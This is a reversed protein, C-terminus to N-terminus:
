RKEPPPPPFYARAPASPAVTAAPAASHEPAAQSRMLSSSSVPVQQGKAYMCQIYANDYNRQSSLNSSQVADMGSLSGGALGIGAGVGTGRSSGGIAAGALAGIATGIAANRVGPDLKMQDSNNGNVLYHAYQRCETDDIRFQDFTKGAGPLAMISPGTPVTACGTLLVLASVTAFFPTSVKM